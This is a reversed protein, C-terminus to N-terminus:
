LVTVKPGEELLANVLFSKIDKTVKVKWQGGDCSYLAFKPLRDQGQDHLRLIYPIVPQDIEPFTKYTKLNWLNKIETKNTLVIGAKTSAVQSYGDDESTSTREAKVSSVVRLLEELTADLVFKTQLNIIFEEQSLQKEFPFDVAVKSFDASAITVLEKNEGLFQHQLDVNQPDKVNIMLPPFPGQGKTRLKAFSVIQSLSFAELTEPTQFNIPTASSHGVVFQQGRIETVVGKTEKTLNAIAEVAKGELM